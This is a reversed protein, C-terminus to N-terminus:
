LGNPVLKLPNSVLKKTDAVVAIDSLDGIRFELPGIKDSQKLALRWEYQWSYEQFKNFVDLSCHNDYRNLYTVKKAAVPEDTCSTLSVSNDLSNQVRRWFEPINNGSIIVAKNGFKKFKESILLGNDGADLIDKDSLITMSYINTNDQANLRVDVKGIAGNIIKGGIMVNVKDPLYSAALGEHADGRLAPDDDQYKRFYEITNMYLLGESLFSDVHEEDMFKILVRNVTEASIM